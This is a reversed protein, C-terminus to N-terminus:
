AMVFRLVASCPFGIINGMVLGGTVNTVRPRVGERRDGLTMGASAYCVRTRGRVNFPFVVCADFWCGNVRVSMFSSLNNSVDVRAMPLKFVGHSGSVATCRRGLHGKCVTISKVSKTKSPYFVFLGM